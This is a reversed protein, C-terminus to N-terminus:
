KFKAKAIENEFEADSMDKFSKPSSKVGVGPELVKMGTLKKEKSKLAELPNAKDYADNVL